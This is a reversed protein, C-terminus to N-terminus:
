TKKRRAVVEAIILSLIVLGVGVVVCFDALNFAPWTFDGIRFDLFDLVGGLRIRDVLNGLAGALIFGFGWLQLKGMERSFGLWGLLLLSALAQTALFVYAMVPEDNMFGWIVGTNQSHVLNFFGPVVVIGHRYPITLEVAIKAAQDAVLCALAIWLALSREGLRGWFKKWDPRSV